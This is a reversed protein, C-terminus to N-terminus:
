IDEFSDGCDQRTQIEQALKGFLEPKPFVYVDFMMVKNVDPVSGALYMEEDHHIM